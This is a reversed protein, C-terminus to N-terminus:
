NPAIRLHVRCINEFFRERRSWHSFVHCAAGGCQLFRMRARRDFILVNRRQIVPLEFKVIIQRNVHTWM